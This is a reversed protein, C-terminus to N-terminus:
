GKMDLHVIGNSHLHHLGFMLQRFFYRCINEPLAGLALFDILEGGEM